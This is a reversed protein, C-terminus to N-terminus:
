GASRGLSDLSLLEDATLRLAGAAVNDVLHEPDGTGPIALVHAGQALTWALRIRAPSVGHARAVARIEDHEARVAGAERGQGALSFFPVFAIGREACARVMEQGGPADVGYRNQVCVVPAIEEAQALHERRAHSIGLHRVLGADRLAALAGFHESISDQGMLRLNVLDLHDRGLQRLNEEVQGRLQEPRASTAWEGDADRAPGVKTAIVLDDAYPALASNILENASRLRSFYFAATDIHNVGLEVARRLTAIAQGRDRPTGQHFAASGTLRMAGFGIRNVELDGLLWTGAAAASVPHPTTQEM